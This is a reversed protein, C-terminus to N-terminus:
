CRWRCMCSTARAARRTWCRTTYLRKHFPAILAKVHERLAEPKARQGPGEEAYEAVQRQVERWARRLPDMLVPEVILEIDARSTYHAGLM